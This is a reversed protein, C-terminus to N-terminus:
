CDRPPVLKDYLDAVHQWDRPLLTAIYNLGTEQLIAAESDSFRLCNLLTKADGLTGRCEIVAHRLAEPTADGIRTAVIAGNGFGALVTGRRASVGDRFPLYLIRVDALRRGVAQDDLGLLLDVRLDCCRAAVMAGFNEYGSPVAGIVTIKVAPDASRVVGMVELFDELGKNPRIHGFYALDISRSTFHSFDISCPINSLIGIVSTPVRSSFLRSSRARDREAGTTFVIRTASFSILALALRSKRSLSTFEHLALLTRYKGTIRGFLVLLHPVLSWGYGQTPYQIIVAEPRRALLRALIGAAGRWSWDREVFLSWSPPAAAMLRDTYDGVGCVDPPYSGTVVVVRTQHLSAALSLGIQAV